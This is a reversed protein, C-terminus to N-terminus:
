DYFEFKGKKNKLNTFLNSRNIKFIKAVESVSNFIEGTENNKVKRKVKQLYLEQSSHKQKKGEKKNLGVLEGSIWRPDDNSIKFINGEKDKANFKGKNIGKCGNRKVGKSIHILEGSLWRPDNKNVRIKKGQKDLVFIFNKMNSILEGVVYRPDDRYVLMNNGQKDVVSVMDVISFNHLGGVIRNYTDQRHCFERNVIEAEKSVMDEKNDFIHLIEKKFNQRGLEKMDKNLYKSSGMYKDNVNYTVHAGVYIKGDILNTIQYVVFFKQKGENSNM